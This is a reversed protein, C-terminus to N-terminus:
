GDGDEAILWALRESTAVELDAPVNQGTTLYTLPKGSERVLNVIPGFTATEDLKTVLLGDYPIVSFRAVVDRMDRYRTAASQALLVTARPVARVFAGLEALHAEQHQSRGPTDVLIVDQRANQAVLEGLDAPTYAVAIPLDLIEAYTQLQPIAAVRFTDTTVLTVRQREFAYTAALKALTTTKGVGTPGVVFLVLPEGRRPQIPGTVPVCRGLHRRVSDGIARPDALAHDSLERDVATVLDRALAPDLEQEVLRRYLRVLSPALKAISADDAERHARALTARLEGIERLLTDAEGGRGRELTAPSPSLSGREGRFRESGSERESRTRGPLPLWLPGSTRTLTLADSGEVDERSRTREAMESPVPPRLSAPLPSATDPTPIAAVSDIAAVVEVADQGFFGLIGGRQVRQSHVIVADTGLDRKVARLADPLSAARYKKIRVDQNERHNESARV